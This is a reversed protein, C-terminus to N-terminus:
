VTNYRSGGTNLLRSLLYLVKHIKHKINVHFEYQIKYKRGGKVFPTAPIRPMIVGTYLVRKYLLLWKKCFKHTCQVTVVM